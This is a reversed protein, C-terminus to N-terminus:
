TFRWRVSQKSNSNMAQRASALPLASM